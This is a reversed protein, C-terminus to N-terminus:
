HLKQMAKQLDGRVIETLLNLARGLGAHIEIEEEQRPTQLVYNLVRDRHGPHGIGIRLRLFNKSGLREATNKLGNHGGDGGGQKLRITGVPLDLDDHAVLISECPIRYFKSLVYVAQGSQNMFTTPLFLHCIDNDVQIKAVQGSFKPERKFQVHYQKAIAEVFWAGANHRTRAYEAGPNGLGVILVIHPTAIM